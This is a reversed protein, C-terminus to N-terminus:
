FEIAYGILLMIPWLYSFFYVDKLYLNVKKLNTVQSIDCFFMSFLGYLILLILGFCLSLESMSCWLHM